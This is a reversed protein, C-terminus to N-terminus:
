CIYNGTFTLVLNYTSKVKKVKVRWRVLNKEEEQPSTSRQLENTKVLSPISINLLNPSQCHKKAVSNTTSTENNIQTKEMAKNCINTTRRSFITKQNIENPLRSPSKKFPYSRKISQSTQGNSNFSNRGDTSSLSTNSSSKSYVSSGSYRSVNSSNMRADNVMCKLRNLFTSYEKKFERYPLVDLFENMANNLTSTNEELIDNFLLTQSNSTSPLSSNM